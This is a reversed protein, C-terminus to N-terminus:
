GGSTSPHEATAPASAATAATVTTQTSADVPIRDMAPRPGSALMLAFAAGALVITLSAVWDAVPSEPEHSRNFM